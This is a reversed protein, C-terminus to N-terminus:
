KRRPYKTQEAQQSKWHLHVAFMTGTTIFGLGEILFGFTELPPYAAAVVMLVEGAWLLVLAVLAFRKQPGYITRHLLVSLIAAWVIFNMFDM